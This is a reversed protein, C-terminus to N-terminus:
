APLVIDPFSNGPDLAYTSVLWGTGGMPPNLGQTRPQVRLLLVVMHHVIPQKTTPDIEKSEMRQGPHQPDFQSQWLQFSVDVWAFQQQGQIQFKVLHPQANIVLQILQRQQVSDFLANNAARLDNQEFRIRAAPTLLFTAATFTGAHSARTGVSRYDLSMERDTFTWATREADLADVVSLGAATWGDPLTQPVWDLSPSGQATIMTPTPSAHAKGSSKPTSANHNGTTTTASTTITRGGRLPPIAQAFVTMTLVALVVMIFTSLLVVRRLPFRRLRSPSVARGQAIDSPSTATQAHASLAPMAGSLQFPTAFPASGDTPEDDVIDYFRDEYVQEAGSNTVHAEQQPHSDQLDEFDGKRDKELENATDM